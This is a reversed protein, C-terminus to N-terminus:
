WGRERQSGKIAGGLTSLESSNFAQEIPATLARHVGVCPERQTFAGDAILQQAASSAGGGFAALLRLHTEGLGRAVPFVADDFGLVVLHGMPHHLPACGGAGQELM